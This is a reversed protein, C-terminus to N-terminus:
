IGISWRRGRSAASPTRWSIHILSLQQLAKQLATVEQGRSGYQLLAPQTEEPLLFSQLLHSYIGVSLVALLLAFIRRATRQSMKM